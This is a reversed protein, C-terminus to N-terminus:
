SPTRRQQRGVAERRRCGWGYLLLRRGHGIEAWGPQLDRWSGPRHPPLTRLERGSQADWLKVTKDSSATALRQGDPSFVVCTVLRTHGKLTFILKGTAIEWLRVGNEGDDGAALRQGDPSFAVSNFQCESPARLELQQKWTGTDWVKVTGDWSASALLRGDPNFVLNGIVLEHAQFHRIEKGSAADWIKISGEDSATALLQGDPSIVLGRVFGGGHFIPRPHSYRLRKLYRWEWGRRHTPCSDLLQEAFGVNGASREREALAITQYYLIAKIEGWGTAGHNTEIKVFVVPNVWYTRLATIKLTSTKDAVQAAPNNEQGIAETLLAHGAAVAAATTLCQRRNM